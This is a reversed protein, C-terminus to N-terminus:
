SLDLDMRELTTLGIEKIHIRIGLLILTIQTDIKRITPKGLIGLKTIEPILYLM